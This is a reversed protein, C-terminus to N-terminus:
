YDYIHEVAIDQSSATRLFESLKGVPLVLGVRKRGPVTIIAQEFLVRAEDGYSRAADVHVTVLIVSDNGAIDVM